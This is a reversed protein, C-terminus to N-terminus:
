IVSFLPSPFNNRPPSASQTALQRGLTQATNLQHLVFNSFDVLKNVKQKKQAEEFNREIRNNDEELAEASMNIAKITRLNPDMKCNFGSHGLKKCCHCRANEKKMRAQPNALDDEKLEDDGEDRIAHKSFKCGPDDKGQRGCCWWM